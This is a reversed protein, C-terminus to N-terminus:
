SVSALVRMCMPMRARAREREGERERERERERGEGGRKREKVREKVSTKVRVHLHAGRVGRKAELGALQYGGRGKVLLSPRCVHQMCQSFTECLPDLVMWGASRAASTIRGKTEGPQPEGKADMHQHGM